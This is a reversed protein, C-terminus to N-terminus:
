RKRQCYVRGTEWVPRRLLRSFRAKNEHKNQRTTCKKWNTFAHKQQTLNQKKGYWALSVDRLPVYFWLEIFWETSFRSFCDLHRKPHPRPQALSVLYLTPAPIVRHLPLQPVTYGAENYLIPVIRRSDFINPLHCCYHPRESDTSYCNTRGRPVIHQM